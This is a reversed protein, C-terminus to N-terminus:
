MCQSSLYIIPHLPLSPRMMTSKVIEPMQLVESVRRSPSNGKLFDLIFVSEVKFMTLIKTTTSASHHCIIIIQSLQYCHSFSQCCQHWHLCSEPFFINKRLYNPFSKLNFTLLKLNFSTIQPPNTYCIQFINQDPTFFVNAISMM